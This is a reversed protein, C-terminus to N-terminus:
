EQVAAKPPASPLEKVEVRVEYRKGKELVPVNNVATNLADNPADTQWTIAYVPSQPPPPLMRVPHENAAHDPKVGGDPAPAACVGAAFTMVSVAILTKGIKNM